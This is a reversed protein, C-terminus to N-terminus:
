RVEDSVGGALALIFQVEDGEKLETDLGKLYKVDEENVFVNIASKIEGDEKLLRNKVGPYLVELKDILERVTGAEVWLESLGGTLRTLPGMMRVRVGKEETVTVVEGGRMVRLLDEDSLERVFEQITEKGSKRYASLLNKLYVKTDEVTARKLVIRGVGALRGYGGGLIVNLGTEISGDPHRIHTAQLGIDSLWHHACAHPCGDCGIIVDGLDGLEGELYDIIETLIEKASGVSYNCFPDSTCATSLARTRSLNLSLGVKKMFDVTDELREEPVNGLILNQRQSIRIELNEELAFDAIRLLQDGSLRGVPVPFGIYYLGEEKQPRVGEHFDRRIQEPERELPEPQFSLKELLRERFGEAGLRDVLYKIRAKVFSKRNEPDERWLDLVALAVELVRDPPIFIGLPRAIRPTSSLGGGVWVAFGARDERLAGVFALDHLEPHNCHYPCASLSIKFKRPLDFYDRHSPDSFFDTLERLSGEISFLEDRDLGAVACSTINRVTDGCPGPRFLGAGRLTEFVSPVDELRVYHLQIDQRSTLEAYNNFRRALEGVVKLQEPTIRGGPLKIRLVFTGIRPKDHYLGYWQLRVLDEEPVEEYGRVVIQDLEKLIDLPHKEKKLRERPNKSYVEEWSVKGMANEETCVGHWFNGM